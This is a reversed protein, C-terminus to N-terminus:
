AKRLSETSLMPNGSEMEVREAQLVLWDLSVGAREFCETILGEVQSLMCVLLGPIHIAKLKKRYSRHLCEKLLRIMEDGLFERQLRPLNVPPSQPFSGFLEEWLVLFHDRDTKLLGLWRNLQSGGQHLIGLFLHHPQVFGNSAHTAYGLSYVLAQWSEADFSSPRLLGNGEFLRLENM